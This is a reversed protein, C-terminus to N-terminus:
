NDFMGADRAGYYGKSVGGLISTGAGLYGQAMATKGTQEDIGAQVNYGWAQRSANNVTKLSDLEGMGATETLLQLPTGSTVDLGGAGMAATQASGIRRAKERKAAAAEAGAGMTQRAQERQMAENKKSAEKQAEASSISGYVSLATSAASLVAGTATAATSITAATGASVGAATLIETLGYCM